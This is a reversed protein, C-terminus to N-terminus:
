VQLINANRARAAGNVDVDVVRRALVREADGRECIEDDLATADM